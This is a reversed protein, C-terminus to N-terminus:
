PVTTTWASTDGSEFGDMFPLESVSVEREFAGADIGAGQPRMVGDFDFPNIISVATDLDLAPSTAQLRFNENAADVFLPNVGELVNGLSFQSAPGIFELTTGNNDFLLLYEAVTSGSNPRQDDITGARGNGTVTLNSMETSRITLNGDIEEQVIHFANADSDAIILNTLDLEGLASRVRFGLQEVERNPTTSTTRNGIFRSADITFRADATSGELGSGFVTNTSGADETVNDRFTCRQILFTETGGDTVSTLRGGAGANLSTNGVVETNIMSGSGDFLMSFGGGTVADNDEFTASAIEIEVREANVYLGGGATAAVNTDFVTSFITLTTDESPNIAEFAVAGGSGNTVTRNLVFAMGTLTLSVQRVRVAGGNAPTANTGVASGTVVSFGDLTIANPNGGGPKVFHLFRNQFGMSVTTAGPGQGSITLNVGTANSFYEGQNFTYTGANLFIFDFDTGAACQDVVINRTAADIAERLTCNGNAVNDDGFTTITYITASAPMARGALLALTILAFRYVPPAGGLRTRFSM